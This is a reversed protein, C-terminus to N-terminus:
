RGIVPEGDMASDLYDRYLRRAEDDNYIAYHDQYPYQALGSTVPDGDWDVAVGEAPLAHVRLGRLRIGEPDTAAEGVIPIRAAAALAETTVSPTQEDHLGETLLVPVPAAEWGPEEAFWSPAYNLPDTVEVLTQVVGVVPHLATLSEDPGFGLLAELTAAIDLPDKRLLVTLSLGGGTGSLMAARMRGRFFPLALAGTLGGQSHGMYAVREPDLLVTGDETDWRAPGDTLMRALYVQDLAGQRFNARGAEPNYFNFSDLEVNTDSTARDGHLPQSIGFMAVGVRGMVTGEERNEGTQCFTRNDGGTGHSYLVVPWGNAPAEGRPVTLSFEVREWQYVLPNGDADFRFGGGTHYPREGWQWVPVTVTGTYLTYESRGDVRTLTPEWAPPAMTEWIARAMQDMDALPNQTTFPVAAAVDELPVGLGTLTAEVDVLGPDGDWGWAEEMRATGALPRRVVLAYRNGGRLPFGFLPGAALLHDATWSSGEEWYEFQLPVQEGRTPSRPDVDVLMVTAGPQVSEEATPLLGTDIPGDFRLYVPSSTGFGDLEWAAAFYADVLPYQGENPFGGFDPRTGRRRDDHPFPRDWFDPGELVPLPESGGPDACAVLLLLM